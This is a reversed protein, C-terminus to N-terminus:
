LNRVDNVAKFMAMINDTPVDSQISDMDGILLDVDLGLGVAHDYGSDVAIVVRDKPIRNLVLPSIPAGGAVVVINQHLM